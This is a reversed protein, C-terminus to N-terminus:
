RPVGIAYVVGIPSIPSRERGFRWDFAGTPDAAAAFSRLEDTTYSRLCSVVGDFYLAFPIVPVVTLALTLPRLTRTLLAAPIALFPVFSMWLVAWASRATPEFLGIGRRSRVADVFIARAEDPRFHHLASFMTRFGELEPPMHRADVPPGHFLV